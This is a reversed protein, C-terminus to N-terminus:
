GGPGADRGRGPAGGASPWRAALWGYILVAPWFAVLMFFPAVFACAAFGLMDDWATIDRVALAAVALGVCLWAFGAAWPLAAWAWSPIVWEPDM